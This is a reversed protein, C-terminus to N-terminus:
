LEICIRNMGVISVWCCYVTHYAYIYVIAFTWQIIFLTRISTKSMPSYRTNFSKRTWFLLSSVYAIISTLRSQLTACIVHTPYSDHRRVYHVFNNTSGVMHFEQFFININIKSFTDHCWLPRQRNGISDSTPSTVTNDIKPRLTWQIVPM